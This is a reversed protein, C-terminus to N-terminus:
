IKGTTNKSIRVGLLVRVCVSVMKWQTVRCSGTRATAAEEAWGTAEQGRGGEPAAEVVAAVEASPAATSPRQGAQSAGGPRSRHPTVHAVPTTGHVAAARHLSSVHVSSTSGVHVAAAIPSM